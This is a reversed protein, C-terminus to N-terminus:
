QIEYSEIISSMSNMKWYMVKIRDVGNIFTFPKIIENGVTSADGTASVTYVDEVKNDKYQAVLIKPNDANTVVLGGVKVDVSDGASLQSVSTVETDNKFLKIGATSYTFVIDQINKNRRSKSNVYIQYDSDPNKPAFEFSFDGNEDATVQELYEVRLPDYTTIPEGDTVLMLSVLDYPTETTGSVTAIGTNYDIYSNVQIKAGSTAVAYLPETSVLIEYVGTDSTKQEIFNGYKDYLEIENCDLDVSRTSSNSLGGNILLVVPKKLNKNYFEFAYERNEEDVTKSVFDTNGGIFYNMATIGLYAPKAANAVFDAEPEDGDKVGWCDLVGWNAEIHTPNNEDYLCYQIIEDALGYSKNVANLLVLSNLQVDDTCGKVFGSTSNDYTSFGAETVWIPININRTDLLDKLNLLDNKFEIERFGLVQGDKNNDYPYMHVSIADMYPVGENATLVSSIWETDVGSIACGIVCFDPNVGKIANYAAKLVKAYTQPTERTPNFTTVNWENWIEYHDVLDGLETAVSRCYNAYAAIEEDTSPAKSNYIENLGKLICVTGLGSNKVGQLRSKTSSSITYEGAAKEVASWEVGERHWKAGSKIMLSSAIIPDAVGTRVMGQNYGFQPNRNDTGLTMCISFKTEFIRTDQEISNIYIKETLRLTYLGYKGPSTLTFAFTKEKNGAVSAMPWERTVVADGAEDFIESTCQFEIAGDTNNKFNQGFTLTDTASFINGTKNSLINGIELSEEEASVSLSFLMNFNVFVISIVCLAALIKKKM